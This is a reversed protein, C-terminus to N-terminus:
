CKYERCKTLNGYRNCILQCKPQGKRPQEVIWSEMWPQEERYGHSECGAPPLLCGTCLMLAMLLLVAKM